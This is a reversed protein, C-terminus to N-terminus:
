AASKVDTKAFDDGVYLLPCGREKALVYAFCDGFNLNAPHFGKGWRTHAEGVQRATAETVPAVEIDMRRILESAESAIGRGAAVIYVETLTGASMLLEPETELALMCAGAMPEALLVAIIASTDVAIM